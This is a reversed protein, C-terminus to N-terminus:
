GEIEEEPVGLERALVISYQKVRESHGYTYSDKAEQSLVLSLITEVHSLKLAEQAKLLQMNTEQLVYSDRLSAIWLYIICVAAASVSIVEPIIKTKVVLNVFQVVILCFLIVLTSYKFFNEAQFSQANVKNETM